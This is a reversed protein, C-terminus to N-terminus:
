AESALFVPGKEIGSIEFIQQAFGTVQRRQETDRFAMWVVNDPESSPKQVWLWSLTAYDTDAEFFNELDTARAGFGTPIRATVLRQGEYFVADYRTGSKTIVSARKNRYEYSVWPAIPWVALQRRRGIILEGIEPIIDGSRGTFKIRLYFTGSIVEPRSGSRGVDLFVIRSDDDTSVSKSQMIDPLGFTGSNAVTVEVDVESTGLNHGLIVITDFEVATGTFDVNLYWPNSLINPRTRLHAQEDYAYSIPWSSDTQDASSNDGTFTWKMSATRIWNQGVVMPKDQSLWLKYDASLATRTYAM